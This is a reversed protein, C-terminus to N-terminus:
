CDQGWTEATVVCGADCCRGRANEAENRRAVVTGPLSHVDFTHAPFIYVGTKDGPCRPFVLFPPQFSLFSPSLLPHLFILLSTFLFTCQLTCIIFSLLLEMLLLFPTCLLWRLLLSLCFFFCIFVQPNIFSLLTFIYSM